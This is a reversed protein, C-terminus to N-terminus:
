QRLSLMIVEFRGIFNIQINMKKSGSVESIIDYERNKEENTIGKIYSELNIDSPSNKELNILSEMMSRTSELLENIQLNEELSAVMDEGEGEGEPDFENVTVPNHAPHTDGLPAKNDTPSPKQREQNTLPSPDLKTRFLNIKSRYTVLSL